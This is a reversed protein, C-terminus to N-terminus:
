DILSIIADCIKRPNYKKRNLTLFNRIEPASKLKNESHQLRVEIKNSNVYGGITIDVFPIYIFGLEIDLSITDIEM